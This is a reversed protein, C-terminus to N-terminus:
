KEEKEELKERSEERKRKRKRKGQPHNKDTQGGKVDRAM